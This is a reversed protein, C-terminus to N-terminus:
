PIQFCYLRAENACSNLKLHTWSGDDLATVGVTGDKLAAESSWEDCHNKGAPAGDPGTNTWVLGEFVTSSYQTRNLPRLLKGDLLDQWTHALVSGDPLDIRGSYLLPDIGFRARPGLFADSLWAKYTGPMKAKAALAQCHADALELGASDGLPPLKGPFTEDTVFAYIHERKCAASCGDGDKTNGDDCQEPDDTDHARLINDGCVNLKCASTCADQDDDDGDDCQEHLPDVQGDPVCLTANCDQPCAYPTELGRACTGDPECVACDHLCSPLSEGADCVHDDDCPADDGTTLDGTTQAGTTGNSDETLSGPGQTTPPSTTVTSTTSSPAFTDYHSDAASSSSPESDSETLVVEPDTSPVPCAALALALLPSAPSICRRALSKM